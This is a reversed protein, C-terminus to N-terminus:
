GPENKNKGTILPYQGRETRRIYLYLSVAVLTIIFTSIGLGWRRFFYEHIAERAESQVVSAVVLGTDVVSEFKAADFAHVVTRSELRAQRVDRLKFKAESIEMGRQEAEEILVHAEDEATDLSDILLRMERATAYGKPANTESHCRSCVAEPSVGLLQNTAAIIEHNGHCTECEPWNNADFAQKHPSAAFLEANLVHCTGCVNSISRVGPPVAGHNGHCSNCAPASADNRQLLAVGHVSKSFKELQDTPIKYEAMYVPDSHCKACTSPLNTPYVSSRVDTPPLIQHSGHCSACEAVNPDGKANLTGHVSTKYKELQDVPLSPNYERMFAADSHCKTCTRVVNVPNVPSAPNKRSLIGHAGHCTTCQVLSGARKGSLSGHVSARLMTLQGTSVTSGFSKMREQDDHCSACTKSVDDGHPVGLFGKGASMAKEMDDSTADGGHCGACSIGKLHHVDNRFRTSPVDGLLVHCAMCEDASFAPDVWGGTMVSLLVAAAIVSNRKM